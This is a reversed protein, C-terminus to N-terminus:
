QLKIKGAKVAKNIQDDTWGNTKLEQRTYTDSSQTQQSQTGPRQVPNKGAKIVERKEKISPQAMVNLGVEDLTVIPKYKYQGKAGKVRIKGDADKQVYIDEQFFPTKKVKDPSSPDPETQNAIKNVTELILRQAKSSLENLPTGINRNVRDRSSTAEDIEGYVDYITEPKAEAKELARAAILNSNYAMRAMSRQWAADQDTIAQEGADFVGSAKIILDAQAAKQPTDVITANGYVKKYATDLKKWQESQPNEIIKNYYKRASKDGAVIDAADDSIKKIQDPSYVEKYPVFAKGTTKDLRMNAEDFVRGPKIGRSATTWLENQKKADFDPVSPSLDAWSYESVGDQKYSKPDYISKGINSLVHLDDEDPDYKGEFKAKGIELETKARQKSQEIKRLLQNYEAMHQQQAVGGRKIADKNMLWNSRWKDIDTAIGGHEGQVDQLRVGATNIKDGLETFYQNLAEDKAKKKALLNAYLNPNPQEVVVAGGTYLSPPINLAM